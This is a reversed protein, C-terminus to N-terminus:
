TPEEPGETFERWLLILAAMVAPGVFLGLLGFTEVGGLIGLLVWLFPLRTTGGILVPRVFHDAVFTVVFGAAVVVAAPVVAGGALLLVAALGFALPAGFPIMAAVATLAGFLVPHPVGAFAYVIGLLFGEGIGVLVLGDVTGHVSAVMQRAVREGRPGFLRHSARLTQAIVTDGDRFLFFLALLCFGFLVVRHVLGAGLTRTLDRNSTTNLRESLEHALGAHALHANWWETVAVAGYPLRAVFDPVPIGNREAERAYALLDHAERGAEVALVAIPLLLVLAVLGTFIAPWLINHRGPPVRRRARAFLPWLAIALVVAWVLARLFGSLIYLGLALLGAVLLARLVRQSRAAEPETRDMGGM